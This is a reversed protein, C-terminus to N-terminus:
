LDSATVQRPAYAEDPTGKGEQLIFYGNEGYSAGWSNRGRFGFVGKSIMVPDLATIAHMWWNHATCVPIRSFLLTMTRDFMTADRSGLDWWETARHLLANEAAGPKWGSKSIQNAPVFEQSAAGFQTIQELDDHIFAGQNQFNTVPGGVSGPSLLVFPQGQVARMAMIALVPSNAHCYNTGNQDLCPIGADNIIDSLRSKDREMDAIRDPWEARPILPFEPASCCLVSGPPKSRAMFGKSMGDPPDTFQQFNDDNIILTM